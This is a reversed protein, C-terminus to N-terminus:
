RATQIGTEDRVRAELLTRVAEDRPGEKVVIVARPVAAGHV